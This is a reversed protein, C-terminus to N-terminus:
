QYRIEHLLLFFAAPMAGAAIILPFYITNICFTAHPLM